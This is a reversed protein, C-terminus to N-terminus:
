EGRLNLDIRKKKKAEVKISEYHLNNLENYEKVVNDTDLIVKFTVKRGDFRPFFDKTLPCSLRMNAYSNIFGKKVGECKGTNDESDKWEVSYQWDLNLAGGKNQVFLYVRNKVEDLTINLTKLDPPPTHKTRGPTNGSASATSQNSLIFEKNLVEPLEPLKVEFEINKENNDENTELYEDKPDITCRLNQKGPLAKWNYVHTTKNRKSMDLEIDVVQYHRLKCILRVSDSEAVGKKEVEIKFMLVDGKRPDKNELTVNKVILDMHPRLQAMLAISFFITIITATLITKRM